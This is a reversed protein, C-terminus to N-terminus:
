KKLNLLHILAQINEEKFHGKMHQTIIQFAEFPAKANAYPRVTTMADYTDCLSVIQSYPDLESAPLGHPYGNGHIKEHHKLVIARSVDSVSYNERLIDMGYLPHKKMEVWEEDNLPGPKNLVKLDINAKGVDHLIGGAGIQYLLEKDKVGLHEALGMSFTMVNVSHTYTYYDHSSLRILNHFADSGQRLMKITNQVVEGSRRINDGSRPNDLVDNVVNAACEYLIGAKKEQTIKKNNIIGGLNREIFRTHERKDACQIYLHTHKNDVLKQKVEATFPLSEGRYLVYRDRVKTFLAKDYVTNIELFDLEIPYFSPESAASADQDKKAKEDGPASHEALDSM